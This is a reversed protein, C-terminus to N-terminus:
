TIFGSNNQVIRQITARSIETIQESIKYCSLGQKKLNLIKEILEPTQKNNSHLRIQKNKNNLNNLLIPLHKYTKGKVIYQITTTTLNYEKAM